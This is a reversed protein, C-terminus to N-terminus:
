ISLTQTCGIDLAYHDCRGTKFAQQFNPARPKVRIAPRQHDSIVGVGALHHRTEPDLPGLIPRKRKSKLYKLAKGWEAKPCSHEQFVFANAQIEGVQYLHTTLNTINGIELVFPSSRGSPGTPQRPVLSQTGVPGPQHEIGTQFLIGQIDLFGRPDRVVNQTM